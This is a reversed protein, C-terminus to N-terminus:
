EVIEVSEARGTSPEKDDFHGTSYVIVKNGVHIKEIKDESISTFMYVRDRGYETFAEEISLEQEIEVYEEVFLFSTNSKNLVTGEYEYLEETGGSSVCGIMLVIVLLGIVFCISKRM